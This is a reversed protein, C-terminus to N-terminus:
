CPLPYNRSGTAREPDLAFLNATNDSDTIEMNDLIGAVRM